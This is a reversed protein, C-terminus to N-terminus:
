VRRQRSKNRVTGCRVKDVSEVFRYIMIHAPAQTRCRMEFQNLAARVTRAASEGALLLGSVADAADANALPM